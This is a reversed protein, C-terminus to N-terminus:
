TRVYFQESDGQDRAFTAKCASSFVYFDFELDPFKDMMDQESEFIHRRRDISDDDLLVWVTTLDGDTRAWAEAVQPQRSIAYAFHMLASRIKLDPLHIPPHAALTAEAVIDAPIRHIRKPLVITTPLLHLPWCRQRSPQWESYEREHSGLSRLVFLIRSRYENDISTELRM